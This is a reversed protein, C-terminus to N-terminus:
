KKKFGFKQSWQDKKTPLITAKLNVDLLVKSKKKQRPMPKTQHCMDHRSMWMCKLKM